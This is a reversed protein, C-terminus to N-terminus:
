QLTYHGAFPIGVQRPLPDLDGAIGLSSKSLGTEEM